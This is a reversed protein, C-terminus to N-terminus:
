AATRPADGGQIFRANDFSATEFQRASRVMAASHGALVKLIDCIEEEERVEPTRGFKNRLMSTYAVQERLRELTSPM